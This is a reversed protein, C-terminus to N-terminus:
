DEFEFFDANELVITNPLRKTEESLKAFANRQNLRNILIEGEKVTKIEGALLKTLIERQAVPSLKALRMLENRNDSIPHEHIKDKVESDIGEAIRIRDQMTRKSMGMDKALEETTVKTQNKVAGKKTTKKPKGQFACHNRTEVEVPVREEGPNGRQARQNLITLLQNRRELYEGQELVTLDYRFLNEDIAIIENMVDDIPVIEAGIVNWGLSKAAAFRHNGAILVNNEAVTIPHHLGVMKMSNALMQVKEPNMHRLLKNPLIIDNLNMMVTNKVIPEVKAM